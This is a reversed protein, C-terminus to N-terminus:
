RIAQIAAEISKAKALWAPSPTHELIRNVRDLMQCHHRLTTERDGVLGPTQYLIDAEPLCFFVGGNTYQITQHFLDFLRAEGTIEGGHDTAGYVHLSLMPTDSPNGMQHILDPSVPLITRYGFPHIKVTSLHGTSVHRDDLAYVSHEAAGFSQVAGWQAAGHDHIASYDGPDWSMVMIEFSSEAYVLNRGYSDAIPHSIAAWHWLDELQINAEQVCHAAKEPTMEPHCQLLHVLTQVRIPLFDIASAKEPFTSETITGGTRLASYPPQAISSSIAMASTKNLTESYSDTNM